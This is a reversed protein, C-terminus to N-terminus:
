PSRDVARRHCFDFPLEWEARQVQRCLDHCPATPERSAECLDNFAFPDWRAQRALFV